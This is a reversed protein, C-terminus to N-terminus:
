PRMAEFDTPSSTQCSQEQLLYADIPTWSTIERLFTSGGPQVRLTQGERVCRRGGTGSGNHMRVQKYM